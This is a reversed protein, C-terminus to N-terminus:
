CSRSCPTVCARSLSMMSIISVFFIQRRALVCAVLSLYLMAPTASCAHRYMYVCTIWIYIYVYADIIHVYIYINYIYLYIRESHM